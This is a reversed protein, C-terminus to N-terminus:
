YLPYVGEKVLQYDAGKDSKVISVEFQDDKFRVLLYKQYVVASGLFVPLHQGPGYFNWLTHFNVLGIYPHLHGAFIASVKFRRLIDKIEHTFSSIHYNLIIHKGEKSAQELDNILWDRASQINFYDRRAKGFNWGNWKATYTPYNNLQVFHIDGIDWSYALSKSYEKKLSPFQYHVGSEHYDFRKVNLTRVQDRLYLAMRSACNNAFCDDVNNAIDHNGLGPYVNMKLQKHYLEQYADFQWDHGFATLDGNIVVGALQDKGLNNMLANLSQIQNVNEKWAKDKDNCNRY